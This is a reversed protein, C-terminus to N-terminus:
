FTRSFNFNFFTKGVFFVFLFLKKVKTPLLNDFKLSENLKKVQDVRAQRIVHVPLKIADLPRATKLLNKVFAKTEPTMRNDIQVDDEIELHTNTTSAM